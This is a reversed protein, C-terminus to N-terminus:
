AYINSAACAHVDSTCASIHLCTHSTMDGLILLLAEHKPPQMQPLSSLPKPKCVVAHFSLVPVHVYQALQLLATCLTCSSSVELHITQAEKPAQSLMDQWIPLVAEHGRVVALFVPHVVVNNLRQRFAAPGLLARTARVKTRRCTAFEPELM